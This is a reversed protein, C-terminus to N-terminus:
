FFYNRRWFTLVMQANGLNNIYSVAEVALPQKVLVTVKLVVAQDQYKM